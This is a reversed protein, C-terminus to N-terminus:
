RTLALELRSEPVLDKLFLQPPHLTMEAGDVRVYQDRM